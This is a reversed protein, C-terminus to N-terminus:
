LCLQPPLKRKLSTANISWPRRDDRPQIVSQPPFHSGSPLFQALKGGRASVAAGPRHPSIFTLEEFVSCQRSLDQFGTFQRTLEFWRASGDVGFWVPSVRDKVLTTIYDAFKAIDQMLLGRRVYSVPVPKNGTYQCFLAFHYIASFPKYRRESLLIQIQFIHM